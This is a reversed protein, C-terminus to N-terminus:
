QDLWVEMLKQAEVKAEPTENKLLVTQLALRLRANHRVGALACDVVLRVLILLLAAALPGGLLLMFFGTLITAFQQVVIRLYPQLFLQELTYQNYKRPVFFYMIASGLQTAVVIGFVLQMDPRQLLTYYNKFVNFASDFGFEQRGFFSFVFISQGFVFFFYHLLFFVIAFGGGLSSNFPSSRANQQATGMRLTAWMKSLHVLGIVITELFYGFVVVLPNWNGYFLGALLILSGAWILWNSASPKLIEFFWKAQGAMNILYLLIFM